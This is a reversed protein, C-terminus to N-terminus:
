HQQLFILIRDHALLALDCRGDGDLDGTALERPENDPEESPGAEFVPIALARALGASSGALIHVGPLRGDVIALDVIGDHDFDGSRGFWFATKDTPSELVALRDLMPGDGFPVRLVGRPGLLLAADGHLRLQAFDYAPVDVSTPAQGSIARVLKNSKKDLYLRGGGPLEASLSLEDLGAPGNDQRLVQVQGAADIRFTRVFRERVAVLAPKGDHSCVALAGDDLKKTFGATGSNKAAAKGAGSGDGSGAGSGAGLTLVRLGENPVIFAVELGDADGIDAVILCGPDAPLRGLDLLSEPAADPRVRHLHANRRDNRGLVLVGGAPDVAVAVPKDVGQLAVPFADLPLAGSKWAVTDEEPSALVLDNKGDGDVDGLALSTVGALTPLSSTMFTGDRWEFFLLRAREPQALLVDDDGDGDVDGLVFPPTRAGDNLVAWWDLAGQGGNAAFTQLSVRPFSGDITALANKGSATPTGWLYRLNDISLIQWAGFTGDGHGRRLRLNMTAGPVICALDLKGDGDFDLLEFAYANEELTEMPSLVPGTAIKTIWRLSGRSFALLDAKGDGDLDGTELVLNRAGLGLDIPRSANKGIRLELRGRSDVVLLDSKGDGTADALSYGGIQGQTPIQELRTEKGDTRVVTLRARRPDLVVAEKRGDGDIDAIRLNAIGFGIKTILPGTFGFRSRLEVPIPDPTSQARLGTPLLALTLNPNLLTAVLIAARQLRTKALM